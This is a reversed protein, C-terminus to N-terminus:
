VDQWTWTGPLVPNRLTPVKQPHSLSAKTASRETIVRSQREELDDLHPLFGPCVCVPLLYGLWAKKGKLPNIKYQMAGPLLCVLCWLLRFLGLSDFSVFILIPVRLCISLPSFYIAFGLGSPVM